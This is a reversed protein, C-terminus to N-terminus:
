LAGVMLHTLWTIFYKALSWCLQISVGRNTTQKVYLVCLVVVSGNENHRCLLLLSSWSFWWWWVWFNLSGTKIEELWHTNFTLSNLNCNRVGFCSFVHFLWNNNENEATVKDCSIVQKQHLIAKIFKKVNCVLLKNNHKFNPKKTICFKVQKSVNEIKYTMMHYLSLSM